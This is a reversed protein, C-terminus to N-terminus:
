PGTGESVLWAPQLPSVHVPSPHQASYRPVLAETVVATPPLSYWASYTGVPGAPSPAVPYLVPHPSRWFSRTGPPYLAPLRSYRSRSLAPLLLYRPSLPGSPFLVPLLSLRLPLLRLRAPAGLRQAAARAGDRRGGRSGCVALVRRPEVCPWLARLAMGGEEGPEM